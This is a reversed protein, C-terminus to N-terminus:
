RRELPAPVASYSPLTVALIEQKELFPLSWLRSDVSAERSDGVVFFCGKPVILVRSAGPLPENVSFTGSEDDLYIRDGEGAAIRKVLTKGEHRFIVVDGRELEGFIRIGLIVSGAPITPEMSASPVYGLFLVYRFLVWVALCLTAPLLTWRFRRVKCEGMYFILARRSNM